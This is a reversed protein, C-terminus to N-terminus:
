TKIMGVSAIVYYFTMTFHNVSMNLHAWFSPSFAMFKGKGHTVPRLTIGVRRSAIEATRTYKERKKKLIVRHDKAPMNQKVWMAWGVSPSFLTQMFVLLHIKLIDSKREQCETLSVLLYLCLLITSSIYCIPKQQPDPSEQLKRM